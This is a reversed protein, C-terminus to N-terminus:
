GRVTPVHEPDDTWAQKWASCVHCPLASRSYHCGCQDCLGAQHGDPIRDGNTKFARRADTATHFWVTDCGQGLSLYFNAGCVNTDRTVPVEGKTEHITIAM